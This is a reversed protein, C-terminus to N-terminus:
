LEKKVLDHIEKKNIVGTSVARGYETILNAAEIGNPNETGDECAEEEEHYRRAEYAERHKLYNSLGILVATIVLTLFFIATTLKGSADILNGMMFSLLCLVIMVGLVIMSLIHITRYKSEKM